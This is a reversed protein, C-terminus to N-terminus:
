RYSEYLALIEAATLARNYIRADDIQGNWGNETGNSGIFFNNANTDINGTRTAQGSVVGNKYLKLNNAGGNADYTCVYHTWTNDDFSAASVRTEAAGAIWVFCSFRPNEGAGNLRMQYSANKIMVKREANSDTGKVWASMTLGSTVQLSAANTVSVYDNTGGFSYAKNAQGKRDTTLTAGSVTGHNSQPTSDKANGDMKWQGVLGKQLDSVVVGPNYSNYLATIETASLARNYIRVDDISGKASRVVSTSTDRGISVNDGTLVMSNTYTANNAVRVGDRYVEMGISADSSKVAVLHHWVDDFLQAKTGASLSYLTTGNNSMLVNNSNSVTHDFQFVWGNVSTHGHSIPDAFQATVQTSNLKVWLSITLNNTMQLIAPNGLDIYDNVGDFSYAKSGQGKRDTATPDAETVTGHNSQPTSDKANGDMKWQGVLGKQLDSVVVGANYANYLAKAEAASIARNYLRMDDMQGNFPDTVTSLLGLQLTASSDLVTFADNTNNDEAGNLYVYGTTGNYTVVVHYWGTTTISSLSDFNHFGSGDGIRLRIKDTSLLELSYGANTPAGVTKVALRQYTGTLDFKFWGAISIGNSVTNLTSSHTIDIRANTGNFDYANNSQGKRDTTLTANTVTGHNSNPTADKANGDMKWHGVLGKELNVSGGGGGFFIAYGLSGGISFVVALAIFVITIKFRNQIKFPKRIM